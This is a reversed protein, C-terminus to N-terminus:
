WALRQWCREEAVMPAVRLVSFSATKSKAMNLWFAKLETVADPLYREAEAMALPCTPLAVCAMSDLRQNSTDPQILVMEKALAEIQAKDEPAVGAM